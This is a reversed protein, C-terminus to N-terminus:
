QNGSKIASIDLSDGFTQVGSDSLTSNCLGSPGPSKDEVVEDVDKFGERESEEEQEGVSDIGM